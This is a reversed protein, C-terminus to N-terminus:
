RTMTFLLCTRIITERLPPSRSIRRRQEMTQRERRATPSPLPIDQRRKVAGTDLRVHRTHNSLDKLVTRGRGLKPVPPFSIIPDIVMPLPSCFARERQHADIILAIL